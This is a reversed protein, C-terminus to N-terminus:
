ASIAASLSTYPLGAEEAIARDVLRGNWVLVGRALDSNTALAAEIGDRGMDLIYPLAAQSIAASAERPWAAPMNGVCYHVVGEEV